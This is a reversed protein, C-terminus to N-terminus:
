QRLLEPHKRTYERVFDPHSDIYKPLEEQVCREMHPVISAYNNAIDGDIHQLQEASFASVVSGAACSCVQMSLDLPYSHSGSSLGDSCTLFFNQKFTKVYNTAVSQAAASLSVMALFLGVFVQIRMCKGQRVNCYGCSFFECRNKSDTNIQRTLNMKLVTKWVKAGM